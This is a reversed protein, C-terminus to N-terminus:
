RRCASQGVYANPDNNDFRDLMLFPDIMDCQQTGIMRTLRVGDGDSTELGKLVKGIYM